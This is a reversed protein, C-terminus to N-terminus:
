RYKTSPGVANADGSGAGSARPCSSTGLPRSPPPGRARRNRRPWRSDPGVWDRWAKFGKGHIVLQFFWFGKLFFFVHCRGRCKKSGSAPVRDPTVSTPRKCATGCHRSQDELRSPSRRRRPGHGTIVGRSTPPPSVCRLMSVATM